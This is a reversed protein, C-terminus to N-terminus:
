SGAQLSMGARQRTRGFAAEIDDVVARRAAVQDRARFAALMRDHPHDPPLEFGFDELQAVLPGLRVQLSDVLRLLTPRGCNALLAHHFAENRAIASARQGTAVASRFAIHIAEMADIVSASARSAVVAAARGELDARLERLEDLEDPGLTPVLVSHREDLGLAHESVLRLLAERVPTASLGLRAALPRLILRQGPRLEGSKLAVRIAQYARESLREGPAEIEDHQTLM